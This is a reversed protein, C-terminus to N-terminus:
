DGFDSLCLESPIMRMLRVMLLWEVGDGKGPPTGARSRTPPSGLEFCPVMGVVVGAAVVPVLM